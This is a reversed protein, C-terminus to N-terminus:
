SSMRPQLALGTHIWPAEIDFGGELITGTVFHESLTRVLHAAFTHHRGDVATIRVDCFDFYSSVIPYLCKFISEKASFVLTLAELRSFGATRVHSVEDPWAIICGVSRAQSESMIRETDIGVAMADGTRAVAASAFDDTHTISGVVGDPWLPVGNASRGVHQVEWSGRLAEMAKIACYRGGRFQTRRKPVATELTSPVPIADIEPPLPRDLYLRFQRAFPPLVTSQRM